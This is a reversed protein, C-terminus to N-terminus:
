DRYQVSCVDRCGGQRTGTWKANSGDEATIHEQKVGQSLMSFLAAPVLVRQTLLSSLDTSVLHSFPEWLWSVFASATFVCMCICPHKTALMYMNMSVCMSLHHKFHPACVTYLHLPSFPFFPLSVYPNLSVWCYLIANPERPLLHPHFVHVCKSEYCHM